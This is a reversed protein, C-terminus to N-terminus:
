LLRKSINIDGEYDILSGNTKQTTESGKGLLLLISKENQKLKDIAKEVAIARDEVIEYNTSNLEVYTSIDKCIENVNEYGPDDATLFIYDAQKGAITGLDKRRTYAKNGPCGFVTYIKYDPYETKITEFIKQFSLLNHAYDIIVKKGNNQITTMRGDIITDFIGKKISENDINLVRAITIAALANELNFRGQLRTEFQENYNYKDSKVIFKYGIDTPIIDAIYYDSNNDSGFTVLKKPDNVTKLISKIYDMDNNIVMANSNPILELKCNLYDEFTPHEVPSIHDESINLFAGVDFQVGHLRKEKYGQSSVEMVLYKLDNDNAELFYRHLDIAEPTTLKSAENTTKTYIDMTSIYAIKSKISENLINKLYNTTTTKGKTGTIGILKFNRENQIYFYSAIIAMALKIDKVKIYGINKYETIYKVESIYAVAGDNIANVLYESKFRSGKCFFLTNNLIEKSNYSINEINIKNFDIDSSYELVLDSKKLVELLQMLNIVNKM